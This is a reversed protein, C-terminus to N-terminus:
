GCGCGISATKEACRKLNAIVPLCTLRAIARFRLEVGTTAYSVYLTRAMRMKESTVQNGQRM